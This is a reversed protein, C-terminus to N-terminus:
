IVRSCELSVNIEAIALTLSLKGHLMTIKIKLVLVAASDPTTIADDVAMISSVALYTGVCAITKSSASYTGNIGVILNLDSGGLGNQVIIPFRECLQFFFTDVSGGCSSTSSSDPGTVISGYTGSLHSSM